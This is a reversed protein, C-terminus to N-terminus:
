PEPTWTELIRPMNLWDQVSVPYVYGTRPNELYIKWSGTPTEPPEVGSFELWDGVRPLWYPHVPVYPEQRRWPRTPPRRMAM